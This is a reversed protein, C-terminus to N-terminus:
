DIGGYLLNLYQNIYKTLENQVYKAEAREEDTANEDTMTENYKKLIAEIIGEYEALLESYPVQEGDSNLVLDDSGYIIDGKGAGGKHEEEDSDDGNTNDEEEVPVVQTNSGFDAVSLGFISAMKNRIYEDMICAYSQTYLADTCASVFESCYTIVRQKYVEAALGSYLIETIDSVFDKVAACLSDSSDELGASALANTFAEGYSASKEVMEDTSLLQATVAGDEGIVNYTEAFDDAWSELASATASDNLEAKKVVVDMSKIETVTDKYYTVGELLRSGFATLSSDTMVANYLAVYTNASAVLGDVTKVTSVVKSKMASEQQKPNNRIDELLTTLAASTGSKVATELSSENVDEILSQLAAITSSYDKTVPAAAKKVPVFIGVFLMAIALVPIFLFKLLFAVNVRSKAATCLAGDAQQRQLEALDGDVGRYEVMTQVKQGLSYQRDLRKAIKVDKPRLLLYLLVGCLAAVAVGVPIGVIWFVSKGTLKYALLFSFFALVGCCVGLVVASVVAVKKYKGKITRFNEEEAIEDAPKKRSKKGSTESGSEAIQASNKEEIPVSNGGRKCSKGSLRKWEVAFEVALAILAVVATAAFIILFIILVTQVGTM